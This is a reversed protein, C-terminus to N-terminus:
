QQLLKVSPFIVPPHLVLDNREHQSGSRLANWISDSGSQKPCPSGLFVTRKELDPRNDLDVASSNVQVYSCSAVSLCRASAINLFLVASFVLPSKFFSKRNKIIPPSTCPSYFRIQAATCSKQDVIIETFFFGVCM